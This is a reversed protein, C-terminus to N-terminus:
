PVGHPKKEDTAPAEDDPLGGGESSAVSLCPAIVLSFLIKTSGVTSSYTDLTHGYKM